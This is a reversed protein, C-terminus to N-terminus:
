QPSNEVTNGGEGAAPQDTPTPLWGLPVFNAPRYHTDGGEIPEREEYARIENDSIWGNQWAIAHAEYRSKLDGRLLADVNFKVFQGKPLIQNFAEEICVLWPALTYVVFGISMQEVGTGWMSSGETDSLMHPPIGFMMAIDTKQHKRTALFQSEEPTISIPQWKLGGGMVAPYRRGAGHTMVWRKMEQKVQVDTLNADTTLIGSPNASDKFWRLGYREAAQSLDLSSAALEVPSLSIPCGATPYAKVHFVDASNVRKGGIMYAPATWDGENPDVSVSDPHVPLIATPQGKDTRDTVYGFANGTVTLSQMLMWKWNNWTIGPYPSQLLAPQPAVAKRIEGKQRYAKLPLQSVGNSLIRVCSFFPLIHMANAPTVYGGGGSVESWKPIGSLDAVARKEPEGVFARSLFSL